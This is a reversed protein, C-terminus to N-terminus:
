YNFEGSEIVSEETPFSKFCGKRVIEAPVAEICVVKEDAIMGRSPPGFKEGTLTSFFFGDNSVFSNKQKKLM